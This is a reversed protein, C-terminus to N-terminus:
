CQTKKLNVKMGSYSCFEELAVLHQQLDQPDKALLVVDDALKALHDVKHGIMCIKMEKRSSNYPWDKGTLFTEKRL